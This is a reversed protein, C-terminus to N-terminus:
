FEKGELAIYLVPGKITRRPDVESRWVEGTAVHVSLEMAIFSKGCGPPGYMVALSSASMVGEVLEPAAKARDYTIDDISLVASANLRRQVSQVVHEIDAVSMVPAEPDLYILRQVTTPGDKGDPRTAGPLRRLRSSNVTVPDAGIAHLGHVLKVSHERYSAEDTAKVRIAVQVSKKGSEAAWAPRLGAALLVPLQIELPLTDSELLLWEFRATDEDKCTHNAGTAGSVPNARWWVGRPGPSPVGDVLLDAVTMLRGATTSTQVSLLDTPEYWGPQSLVAALQDHPDEPVPVPSPCYTSHGRLITRANAIQEDFPVRRLRPVASPATASGDFGTASRLAARHAEKAAVDPDRGASVSVHTLVEALAGEDTLGLERARMAMAALSVNLGTGPAPADDELHGHEMLWDALGHQDMDEWGPLALLGTRPPATSM